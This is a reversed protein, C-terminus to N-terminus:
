RNGYFYQWHFISFGTKVKSATSTGMDEQSRSLGWSSRWKRATLRQPESIAAARSSCQTGDFTEARSRWSSACSPM